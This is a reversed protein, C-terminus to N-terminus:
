LRYSVRKIVSGTSHIIDNSPCYYNPTMLECPQDAKKDLCFDFRTQTKVPQTLINKPLESWNWNKVVNAAADAFYKHTSAIVKLDKIENQPTVVYEITACGDISNQAAKVPYRAPFRNLQSWKASTMAHETVSLDAYENKLPTSVCGSVILMTIVIAMNNNMIKVDKDKYREVPASKTASTINVSNGHFGHNQRM